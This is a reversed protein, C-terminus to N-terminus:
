QPGDKRRLVITHADTRRVGEFFGRLPPYAVAANFFIGDTGLALTRRYVLRQGSVELRAEYRAAGINVPKPFATADVTYGSPLEITVVDEETWGFPFYINSKREVSTFLPEIGRQFFSPKLSLGSAIREAFGPVRVRYRATYPAALDTVHELKIDSINAGPLRRTVLDRLDKERQAIADQDEQERFTEAWHGTYELSAEGELTGDELLKFTGTRLKVSYSPPEMPTREFQPERRDTILVRQDQYEWRLQGKAAYENTPDAFIWDSGSRVAVLRGRLFYPHPKMSREFIEARSAAAVVRADLDVASALAVFLAVVDDATGIREKLVDAATRVDRAKRRDEPPATDVDVRRITSRAVRVLAAVKAADSAAGAIATTALARIADNPASRQAYEEFLRKGFGRLFDEMSQWRDLALYSIFISPRRELSPTPYDEDIDADVNALAIMSSGDRQRVSPPLQGNLSWVVMAHGPIDLRRFYYRVTHAPVDRSFPLVLNQALSVRHVERWRYEVIAGREIAPAAFSVAKVKLDGPKVLTRRTVDSPTLEVISGDPRITRAAVDRVEVDSAYPIDVTSLRERGRETFIKLRIYHHFTTAVDAVSNMDDTVRVEWFLAEVDAGRQVKPEKLGLEAPDIPKWEQASATAAPSLLLCSATLSASLLRLV